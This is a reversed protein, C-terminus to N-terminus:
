SKYKSRVYKEMRGMRLITYALLSTIIAALYYGAGIAIGVAVTILLSAATTIGVVKERGIKIITGGGIFGIGALLYAALRAKDANEFAEISLITILVSALCVLMHTRM